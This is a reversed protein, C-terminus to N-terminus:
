RAIELFSSPSQVSTSGSSTARSPVAVRLVLDTWDPRAKPTEGRLLRAVELPDVDVRQVKDAVEGVRGLEVSDTGRLYTNAACSLFNRFRVAQRRGLRGQWDRAARSQAEDGVRRGDAPGDRALTVLVKPSPAIQDQRPSPLIHSVPPLGDGM